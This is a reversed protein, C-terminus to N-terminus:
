GQPQGAAAPALVTVGPRDGAAPCTGYDPDKCTSPPPRCTAATIDLPAPTAREGGRGRARTPPHSGPGGPARPRAGQGGPVGATSRPQRGQAPRSRPGLDLETSQVPAASRRGLAQSAM